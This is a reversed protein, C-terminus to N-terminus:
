FIFQVTNFILYEINVEYEANPDEALRPLQEVCQDVALDWAQWLPHDDTPPLKPHSVPICKVTRM